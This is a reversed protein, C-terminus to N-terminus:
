LEDEDDVAPKAVVKSKTEAPLAGLAGKIKRWCASIVEAQYAADDLANHQVGGKPFPCNAKGFGALDVATRMDRINFFSWAEKLGVAGRDYAYELISIDFTAGNGWVVPDHSLGRMWRQLEELATALAVKSGKPDFVTRAKKDQNMWWALTSGNVRGARIASDIDIERYFTEGKKSTNPDFQVVGISIIPADYRTGLTELDVSFHDAKFKSM